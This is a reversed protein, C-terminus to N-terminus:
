VYIIRLVLLQCMLLQQLLLLLEEIQLQLLLLLEVLVHLLNFNLHILIIALLFLTLQSLLLQIIACATLSVDIISSFISHAAAAPTHATARLAGAAGKASSLPPALLHLYLFSVM